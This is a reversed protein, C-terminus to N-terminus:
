HNLYTPQSQQSPRLENAGFWVGIALSYLQHKAAGGNATDKYLPFILVSSVPLLLLVSGTQILQKYM